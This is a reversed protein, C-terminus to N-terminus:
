KTRYMTVATHPPHKGLTLTTVKTAIAKFPFDPQKLAASLASNQKESGNYIIYPAETKELASEVLEDKQLVNYTALIALLEDDTSEYAALLKEALEVTLM